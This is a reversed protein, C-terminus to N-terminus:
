DKTILGINKKDTGAGILDSGEKVKFTDTSEWKPNSRGLNIEKANGTLKVKGSNFVNSNEIKQTSGQLHVISTTSRSNDIVTNKIHVNQIGNVKIIRGKESDDVRYFVCHDILINGGSTGQEEGSRTYNIAFEAFDAFSSNYIIIHEANYKGAADKEYSLNLGRYSNKFSSNKISITDAKTGAYAKFIAGGDTNSFNVFDVKELFVSYTETTPENSSTIGYKIADKKGAGDIHVGTISLKKAGSMRFIYQPSETASESVKIFTKDTGAGIITLDNSVKSAKSLYYTGAALRLTTPASIGRVAKDLTGEGPAVDIVTAEVKQKLARLDEIKLFSVGAESSLALAPKLNGPVIAGARIESRLAGTADIRVKPSTAVGALVADSEASPIYIGNAAELKIEVIDVGPMSSTLTSSIKNGAMSIGKTSGATFFAEGRNSNYILNNEFKTNVPAATAEKRSGVSFAVPSSDIVLNNQIIGDIVQDYGNLPSDPVGMMISLPARYETGAIGILINNRVINGKNIMRIGGTEPLNNGIIVNGEVLNYDGHRLTITGESELILNNRIINYASKISIIEIEGSCREFFNNEVLTKSSQKSYDSTGIRITEGGNFGLPLREGFYNHDIRHNNDISNELRVALAPGKNLKGLLSCHDVRNNKGHLAIYYNTTERTDPNVNIIACNTLRTNNAPTESDAQFKVVSSTGVNGNEFWLGHVELYEGGIRLTSSGTLKVKGPTQSRLIIPKEATGAAKFKIDVDKWEQNAMVITDGPKANKIAKALQVIDAAPITQAKAFAFCMLLWVAINLNM